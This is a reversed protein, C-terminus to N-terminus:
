TTKLTDKISVSKGNVLIESNSTQRYEKKHEPSLLLALEDVSIGADQAAQNLIQHDKRSFNKVTKMEQILQQLRAGHLAFLISQKLHPFPFKQILVKCLDYERQCFRDNSFNVNIMGILHQERETKEDSMELAIEDANNLWSELENLSIGCALVKQTISDLDTDLIQGEICALVILNKILSKNKNM